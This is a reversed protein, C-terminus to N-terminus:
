PSNPRIKETDTTSGDAYHLYVDVEAIGQSPTYTVGRVFEQKMGEVVVWHSGQELPAPFTIPGGQPWKVEQVIPMRPVSQRANLLRYLGPPAAYNWIVIASIAVLVIAIIEPVLGELKVVVAVAIAFLVLAVLFLWTALM